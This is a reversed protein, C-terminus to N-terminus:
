QGPTSAHVCRITLLFLVDHLKLQDWEARINGRLAQTDYVINATVAAPKFEGVAPKRVETIKFVSIPLAMRAWGAFRVQARHCLLPTRTAAATPSPAQHPLPPNGVCSV